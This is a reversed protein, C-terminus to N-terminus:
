LTTMLSFLHLFYNFNGYDSGILSIDPYARFQTSYPNNSSFPPTVQTFYNNVANVQFDPMLYYESFGGGSTANQGTNAALAIQETLDGNTGGSTGGVALVYPCSAPFM